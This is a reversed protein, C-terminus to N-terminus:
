KPGDPQRSIINNELFSLFLSNMLNKEPSCVEGPHPRNKLLLLVPFCDYIGAPARSTVAISMKACLPHCNLLLSQPKYNAEQKDRLTQLLPRIYRKSISAPINKLIEKDLFLKWKYWREFKQFERFEERNLM